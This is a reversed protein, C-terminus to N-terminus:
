KSRRRAGEFADQAGCSTDRQRDRVGVSRAGGQGRVREFGRRGKARNARAERGRPLGTTSEARHRGVLRRRHVVDPFGRRVAIEVLELLKQVVLGVEHVFGVGRPVDREIGGRAEGVSPPGGRREQADSGIRVSRRM